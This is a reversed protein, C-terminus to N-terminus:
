FKLSVGFRFHRPQNGLLYSEINTTYPAFQDEVFLNENDEVYAARYRNNPNESFTRDYDFVQENLLNFGELYINLSTLGFLITKEIRIKLDNENPTRLNFRLGQGSADYTFPRGSQYTYTASIAMNSFPKFGGIGLGDDDTKLTLNALVRHTRDYDLYVDEPEPLTNNVPDNELLVSRAGVGFVSGSKGTSSQWSYKLFGRLFGENKELDVQFGKVDAYEKNDFTEYQNGSEDIYIAFQVLNSIDKLYASLDISFGFPLNRVIGIDYSITKEPELQPNGLRVFNPEPSLKFRNVYIYQFAPRQTFVGYNLHLVTRDDVPFSIGIRPQLVSNFKTKEKGALSSSFYPSEPDKPNFNPNRFPSYKDTYYETNFDYFDYRLGINAVMGEFEMKDQIYIAGEIPFKHYKELRLSSENSASLRRNVDIDYYFLQLGAKVLNYNDLQSTISGSISFSKTNNEGISTNLNGVSHGSPDTYFRWNSNDNYINSYENSNLLNIRDRDNTTLLGLKVDMFTSQSYVHNWELGIQTSHNTNININFTREFYRFFDSDFENQTQENYNLLLKFKDNQNPKYTISSLFQMELDPESSPLIPNVAGYRGAVFLALNEALPGSLAMDVRYDPKKYELGVDRASQLWLSRVLSATRISDERTLRTPPFTFPPVPLYNEPFNIGFHTWLIKGSAPDVGDVWEEPNNMLDFYILNRKDYVSGGWTKYYENTSAVDIRTQWKSSNGEKTIMNIVGSQVNGYEASFGSTYVEVQEFAISMPNFARSNNLPNVISNGGILYLSEGSRGGRFHGDSVDAQLSLIDGIDNVGPLSEIKSLDYSSKTATLDREAKDASFATVVVDGTVNLAKSKLSFDIRTTKDVNISVKTRIEDYYGIYSVKLNYEGPSINLLFYEGNIDSAAGIHKDFKNEVGDIWKSIISLNAFALPEGTEFDTIRGAIKGTEGAYLNLTLITWFSFLLLTKKVLKSFM